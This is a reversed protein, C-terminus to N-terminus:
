LNELRAFKNVLDFMCSSCSYDIPLQQNIKKEVWRLIEMSEPYTIDRLYGGNVMNIYHRYKDHITPEKPAETTTAFITTVETTTKVEVNKVTTKKTTKKEM